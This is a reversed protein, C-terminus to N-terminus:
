ILLAFAISMAVGIGALIMWVIMVIGFLRWYKRQAQLAARLSEPSSDERFRGIWSGYRSVYLAFAGYILAAIFYFFIPAIVEVMSNPKMMGVIPMIAMALVCLGTGLWALVGLFTAWPKTAGLEERLIPLYNHNSEPVASGTASPSAYPNPTASGGDDLRQDGEPFPVVIDAQCKPCKIARGCATEAVRLTAGCGPCAFQIPM